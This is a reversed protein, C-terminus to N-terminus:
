LIDWEGVMLMIVYRCPCSRTLQNMNGDLIYSVSHSYLICKMTNYVCKIDYCHVTFKTICLNLEFDFIYAYIITAFQTM